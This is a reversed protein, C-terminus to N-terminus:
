KRGKSRRQYGPGRVGKLQPWRKYLEKLVGASAYDPGGHPKIPAFVRLKSKPLIWGRVKKESVSVARTFGIEAGHDLEDHIVDLNKLGRFRITVARGEPNKYRTNGQKGLLLAKKYADTPSDARILTQNIHVVNRRDGQVKVEEVIDAVYWKAGEPIYAM